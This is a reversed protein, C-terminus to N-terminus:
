EKAKGKEKAESKGKTADTANGNSPTAPAAPTSPAPVPATEAAPQVQMGADLALKITAQTIDVSTAYAFVPPTVKMLVIELGSAEAAQLAIPELRSRFDNIMRIREQALTQQAQGKIRNFEENLQQNTAFIQKKQEETPNEGATQEVRTMQDQMTTQTRQLDTNLSNQMNLLDVRVKEEVGLQRAVEDIDLIAVGGKQALAPFTFAAFTLATLLLTKM